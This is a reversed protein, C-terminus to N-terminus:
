KSTMQSEARSMLAEGEEMSEGKPLTPFSGFTQNQPGKFSEMQDELSGTERTIDLDRGPYLAQSGPVKWNEHDIDYAHIDKQLPTMDNAPASHYLYPDFEAIREYPLPFDKGKKMKELKAVVGIRSEQSEPKSVKMRDRAADFAMQEMKMKNLM